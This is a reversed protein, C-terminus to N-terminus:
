QLSACHRSMKAAMGQICPLVTKSRKALQSVSTMCPHVPKHSQLPPHLPAQSFTLNEWVTIQYQPANLSHIM